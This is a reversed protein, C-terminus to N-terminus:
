RPSLPMASMLPQMRMPDEVPLSVRVGFPHLQEIPPARLNQPQSIGLPM